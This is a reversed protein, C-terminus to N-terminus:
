ENGPRYFTQLRDFLLDTNPRYIQKLLDTHISPFGSLKLFLPCKTRCCLRRLACASQKSWSKRVEDDRGVREMIKKRPSFYSASLFFYLKQFLPCQKAASGVYLVCVAQVLVIRVKGGMRSRRPFFYTGSFFSMIGFITSVKNQLLAQTSYMCEAQVLKKRVKDGRGVLEMRKRSFLMIEFITSVRNQLLAQKCCVCEAQVLIKRVEVGRGVWQM